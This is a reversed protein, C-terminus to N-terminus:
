FFHEEYDFGCTKLYWHGCLHDAIITNKHGPATDFRYYHGNWLKEELSHKAKELIDQDSWFDNPQDLLTAMSAMTQLVALWLGSCYANCVYLYLRPGDLVWSDYTQDPM